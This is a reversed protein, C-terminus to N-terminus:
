GSKSGTKRCYVGIKPSTDTKYLGNRMCCITLTRPHHHSASAFMVVHEAWSAANAIRASISQADITDKVQSCQYLGLM